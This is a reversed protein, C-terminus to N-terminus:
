FEWFIVFTKSRKEMLIRLNKSFHAHLIKRWFEWFVWSFCRLREKLIRLIKFFIDVINKKLFRLFIAFIEWITKRWFEFFKSFFSQSANKRLIRVLVIPLMFSIRYPGNNHSFVEAHTWIHWLVWLFCASFSLCCWSDSFETSIYLVSLCGETPLLGVNRHGLTSFIRGPDRGPCLVLDFLQTTEAPGSRDPPTRGHWFKVVILDNSKVYTVEIALYFGICMRLLICTLSTRRCRVDGRCVNM